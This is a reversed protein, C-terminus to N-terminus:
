SFNKFFSLACSFYFYPLFSFLRFYNGISCQSNLTGSRLLTRQRPENVNEFGILTNPSSTTGTSGASSSSGSSMSSSSMSIVSHPRKVTRTETTTSIISNRFRPAALIM